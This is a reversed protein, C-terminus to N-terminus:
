FCENPAVLGNIMTLITIGRWSMPGLCSEPCAASFRHGGQLGEMKFLAFAFKMSACVYNHVFVFSICFFAVKTLAVSTMSWLSSPHDVSSDEVGERYLAESVHLYCQFSQADPDGMPAIRGAQCPRQAVPTSARPTLADRRAHAYLLGSFCQRLRQLTSSWAFRQILRPM